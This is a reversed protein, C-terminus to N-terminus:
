GATTYEEIIADKEEDSMGDNISAYKAAADAFRQEAVTQIDLANKLTGQYYADFLEYADEGYLLEM